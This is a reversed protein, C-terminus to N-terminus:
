FTSGPLSASLCTTGPAVCSMGSACPSLPGRDFRERALFFMLPFPLTGLGGFLAAVALYGQRLTFAAALAGYVILPALVAAALSATLNFILRYGTLTTREDYDATMEATLAYFPVWVPTQLTDSIMGALTVHLM